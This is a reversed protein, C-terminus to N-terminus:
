KMEGTTTSYRKKLARAPMDLWIYRERSEKASRAM